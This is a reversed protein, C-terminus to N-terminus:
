SGAEQSDSSLHCGNATAEPDFLPNKGPWLPPSGSGPIGTMKPFVAWHPSRSLTLLELRDGAVMQQPETSRQIKAGYRRPCSDGM